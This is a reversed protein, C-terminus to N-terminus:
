MSFASFIISVFSESNVSFYYEGSTLFIEFFHPTEKASNSEIIPEPLFPLTVLFSM